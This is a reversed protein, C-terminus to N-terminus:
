IYYRLACRLSRSPLIREQAALMRLVEDRTVYDPMLKENLLV